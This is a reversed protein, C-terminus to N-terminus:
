ACTREDEAQIRLARKGCGSRTSAPGPTQPASYRTDDRAACRCTLSELLCATRPRRAFRRLAAAIGLGLVSFIVTLVAFGSPPIPTGSVATSIGVAEGTAAV